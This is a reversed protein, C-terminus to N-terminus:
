GPVTQIGLRPIEVYQPHLWFCFCFTTLFCSSSLPSSLVSNVLVFFTLIILMQIIITSNVSSWNIIAREKEWIYAYFEKRLDCLYILVSHILSKFILSWSVFYLIGLFSLHVDEHCQTSPMFIILLLIFCFSSLNCQM